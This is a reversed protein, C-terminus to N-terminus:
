KLRGYRSGSGRSRYGNFRSRYGNNNNLKFSKHPRINHRKGHYKDPHRKYHSKHYNRHPSKYYINGKKHYYWRKYHSHKFNNYYPYHGFYRIRRGSFGNYNEQAATMLYEAYQLADQAKRNAEELRREAAQQMELLQAEMDALEQKAAIMKELKEAEMRENDAKEDYPIEATQMLIEAGAPPVSNSIHKVGNEDTWM